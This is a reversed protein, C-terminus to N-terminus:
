KSSAVDRINFRIKKKDDLFGHERMWDDSYLKSLYRDGSDPLLAVVRKGKGAERAIDLAVKVAGGSSGGAFLGEEQALRRTYEFCDHDNVQRIDDVVSFDMAEVVMDEGIGEVKYVHPEIVKGSKFYDYFVSGEPDVAINQIGPHVEKLYKGAGSMTGGTGIGAIFYDLQGGTQDFIEPGTTSYHSKINMPNHYQNVYYSNPTEEAIRRATEYYSEPAEPPVDTPCIIVEAGFAKLRNIKEDSMKDPITFIMKYGKLAAIMALGVGTNGSTNEVITGGPKIQGTREAEDIIFLAMRDKVSGGPNLFEAKVLVEADDPGVMNNIRILPTNGVYELINNLIM